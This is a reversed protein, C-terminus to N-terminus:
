MIKLDVPVTSNNITFVMTGVEGQELHEQAQEGDFKTEDIGIWARFLQGPLVALRDVGNPRPCWEGGFRLQLVDLPLNKVTVKIPKYTSLRVDACITSDNRMTVYCKLPYRLPPTRNYDPPPININVTTFRPELQLRRTRGLVFIVTIIALIALLLSAISVSISFVNTVEGGFNSYM